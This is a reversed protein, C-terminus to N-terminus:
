ECVGHDIRGLVDIVDDGGDGGDRLPVDVLRKDLAPNPYLLWGIAAERNREFTDIAKALRPAMRADDILIGPAPSLVPMVGDYCPGASPGNFLKLLAKPTKEFGGVTEM